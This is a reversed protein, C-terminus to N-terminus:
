VKQCFGAIATGDQNGGEGVGMGVGELSSDSIRESAVIKQPLATNSVISIASIHHCTVNNQQM